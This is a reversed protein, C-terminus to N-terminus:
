SWEGSDSASKHGEHTRNGCPACVRGELKSYYQDMKLLICIKKMKFISIDKKRTRCEDKAEAIERSDVAMLYRSLHQLELQPSPYVECTPLLTLITLRYLALSSISAQSSQWECHERCETEMTNELTKEKVWPLRGEHYWVQVSDAQFVYRNFSM